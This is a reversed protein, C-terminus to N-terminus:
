CSPAAIVCTLILVAMYCLSKQCFVKYKSRKLSSAGSQTQWVVPRRSPTHGVMRPGTEAQNHQQTEGTGARSCGCKRRCDGRRRNRRDGQGGEVLFQRTLCRRLAGSSGQETSSCISLGVASIHSHNLCSVADQHTRVAVGVSIGHYLTCVLINASMQPLPCMTPRQDDELARVPICFPRKRVARACRWNNRHNDLYCGQFGGVQPIM